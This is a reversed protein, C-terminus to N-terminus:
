RSAGRSIHIRVYDYMMVAAAVAANLSEAKGPMPLRVRLTALGLVEECVGAGENGVVLCLPRGTVPRSFFPSGRMDGVVIDFGKLEKLCAALAECRLVPVRFVAGMSARLAKPCFPDATEADTLMGSFGAADITRLITGVNGPDQLGNLAVVREGLGALSPGRPLRCVAAVGQPARTECVSAFDRASLLFAQPGASLHRRYEGLRDRDVLVASAAGAAVAEETLHEGEAIFLGSAGREGRQRLSRWFLVQARQAALPGTM